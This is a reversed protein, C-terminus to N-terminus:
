ATFCRYVLFSAKEKKPTSHKGNDLEKLVFLSSLTIAMVRKLDFVFPNNRVAKRHCLLHPM